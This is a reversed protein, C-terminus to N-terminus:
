QPISGSLLMEEYIDRCEWPVPLGRSLADKIRMPCSSLDPGTGSGGYTRSSEYELYPVDPIEPDIDLDPKPKITGEEPNWPNLGPINLDGAHPLPPIPTTVVDTIKPVDPIKPLTAPMVGEVTINLDNLADVLADFDLDPNSEFAKQIWPAASAATIIGIVIYNPLNARKAVNVLKDPTTNVKAAAEELSTKVPTKPVPQTGSKMSRKAAALAADDLDLGASRIGAKAVDEASAVSPIKGPLRMGTPKKFKQPVSVESTNVVSRYPNQYQNYYHEFFQKYIAHDGGVRKTMDRAQQIAWERMADDFTQALVELKQAGGAAGVTEVARVVSAPGRIVSGGIASEQIASLIDAAGSSALEENMTTWLGGTNAGLETRWGTLYRDLFKIEEPELYALPFSEWGYAEQMASLDALRQKLQAVQPKSVEIEGGGMVWEPLSNIWGQVTEWGKKVSGVIDSFPNDTDPAKPQRPQAEQGLYAVTQYGAALAADYAARDANAQDIAKKKKAEAAARAYIDDLDSM